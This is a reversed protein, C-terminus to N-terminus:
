LRLIPYVLKVAELYVKKTAFVVGGSKYEQIIVKVNSSKAPQYKPMNTEKGFKIANLIWVQQTTGM